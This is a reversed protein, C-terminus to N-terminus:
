YISNHREINTPPTLDTEPIPNVTPASAKSREPNRSATQLPTQLNPNGLAGGKKPRQIKLTHTEHKPTNASCAM